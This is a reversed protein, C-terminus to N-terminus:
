ASRHPIEGTWNGFWQTAGDINHAHGEIEGSDRLHEIRPPADTEDAKRSLQSLLVVPVGFEKGLEVLGAVLRGLELNRNDGEGEAEAMLKVTEAQLRIMEAQNM